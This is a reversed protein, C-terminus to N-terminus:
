DAHHALLQPHAAAAADGGHLAAEVLVALDDLSFEVGLVFSRYNM